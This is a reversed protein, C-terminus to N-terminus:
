YQSFDIQVLLLGHPSLRDGIQRAIPFDLLECFAMFRRSKIFDMPAAPAIETEKARFM